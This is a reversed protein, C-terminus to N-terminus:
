RLHRLIYVISHIIVNELIVFNSFICICLNLHTVYFNPCPWGVRAFEWYCGQKVVFLQCAIVAQTHPILGDCDSIHIWMLIFIPNLRKSVSIWKLCGSIENKQLEKRLPHSMFQSATKRQPRRKGHKLPMMRIRRPRRRAYVFARRWVLCPFM